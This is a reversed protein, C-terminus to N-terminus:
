AMQFRDFARASSRSPARTPLGPHALIKVIGAPDEITAIITLPGGCHPCHAMDIELVRKLLQAWSM